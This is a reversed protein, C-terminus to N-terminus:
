KIIISLIHQLSLQFFPTSINLTLSGAYTKGVAEIYNKLHSTVVSGGVPVM